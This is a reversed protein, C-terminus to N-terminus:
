FHIVKFCILLTIHRIFLWTGLGMNVTGTYDKEDEAVGECMWSIQEYLSVEKRSDRKMEADHRWVCKM